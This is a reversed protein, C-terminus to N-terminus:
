RSMGVPLQMINVKQATNTITFSNVKRLFCTAPAHFLYVFQHKFGIQSRQEYREEDYLEHQHHVEYPSIDVIQHSLTEVYADNDLEDGAGRGVHDRQTQRQGHQQRRDHSHSVEALAVLQQRHLRGAHRQRLYQPRQKDDHAAYGHAAEEYYVIEYREGVLAHELYEVVYALLPLLQFELVAEEEVAQLAHAYADALLVVVGSQQM